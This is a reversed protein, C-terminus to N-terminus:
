LGCDFNYELKRATGVLWLWIGIVEQM